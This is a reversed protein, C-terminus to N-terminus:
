RTSAARATGTPPPPTTTPADPQAARHHHRRARLHADDWATNLVLDFGGNVAGTLLIDGTGSQLTTNANLALAGVTM